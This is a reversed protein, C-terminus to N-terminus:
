FDEDGVPKERASALVRRVYRDSLSLKKAIMAARNQEPKDGLAHWLGIIEGVHGDLRRQDTAAKPRRSLGEKIV